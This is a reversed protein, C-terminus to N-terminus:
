NPHRGDPVGQPQADALRELLPLVHALAALEDASFQQDLARFLWDERAARGAAIWQRCHETLSLLTQRGDSPHPAGEVLGAAELAAITAGMSQPRIGEAHALATVTAAGDRELRLLVAKQANTLDGRTTQERLRRQLKGLVSRLEAALTATRANRSETSRDPM